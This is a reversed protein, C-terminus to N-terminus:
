VQRPTAVKRKVKAMGETARKRYEDDMWKKKMAASIKKRHSDGTPSRKKRHAMKEMMSVRFEPDQWKEKLTNSIRARISTQDRNIAGHTKNTMVERYEEDEAWKRRLTERIKEKTEESHKFGRRAGPGGATANRPARM